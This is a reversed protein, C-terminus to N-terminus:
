KTEKVNPDDNVTIPTTSTSIVAAIDDAITPCQARNSGPEIWPAAHWIIDQEKAPTASDVLKVFVARVVNRKLAEKVAHAKVDCWVDNFERLEVAFGASYADSRDPSSPLVVFRV